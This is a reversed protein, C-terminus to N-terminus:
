QLLQPCLQLSPRSRRPPTRMRLHLLQQHCLLSTLGSCLCRRQRSPRRPLGRPLCRLQRQPRATPHGPRALRRRPPARHSCTRGGKQRLRLGRRLPRLPRLRLRLLLPLLPLLLVAVRQRRTLLPLQLRTPLPLWLSPRRLHWHAGRSRAGSSSTPRGCQLWSKRWVRRARASRLSSRCLHLFPHPSDANDVRGRAAAGRLREPMSSSSPYDRVRAARAM